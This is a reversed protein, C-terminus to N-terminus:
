DGVCAERGDETEFTPCALVFACCEDSACIYDELDISMSAHELKEFKTLSYGLHLVSEVECGSTKENANGATDPTCSAM